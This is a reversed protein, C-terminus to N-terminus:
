RFEQAIEFVLPKILDENLMINKLLETTEAGTLYDVPRKIKIMNESFEPDMMVKNLADRLAELRRTPMNPPAILVRELSYIQVLTQMLPKKDPPVAEFITPVNPLDPPRKDNFSIVPIVTQAEIQSHVSADSFLIADVEGKVCALSADNASLFGTHAEVQYGLIHATVLAIYYDDSGPGTFGMSIRKARVIDDLTTFGTKPSVVMIHAEANIRGIYSFETTKYQVGPQEAWEALLAGASTTLGLTLGDPPAAYIQNRGTIGGGEPINQVEVKSGPLNKQLYPAIMRAYTDMGGGRGNTVIITVTKGRFFGLDSGSGACSTIGVLTLTSVICLNAFWKPLKMTARRDRCMMIVIRANKWCNEIYTGLNLLTLM